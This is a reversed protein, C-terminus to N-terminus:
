QPLQEINHVVGKGGAVRFNFEIFIFFINKFFYIKSTPKKGPTQPTGFNKTGGGFQAAGPIAKRKCVIELKIISIKVIKESPKTLVPLM